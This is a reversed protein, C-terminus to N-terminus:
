ASEHMRRHAGIREFLEERGVNQGLRLGAMAKPVIQALDLTPCGHGPALLCVGLRALQHEFREILPEIELFKTFHFASHSFLATLEPLAISGLEEATRGCHDAPHYHAYSFGDGTFLVREQEDWVWLTTVLDKFTAEEFRLLRGGLDVETGVDANVFCDSAIRPYYVHYDRIDALIRAMPFKLLLRDLNGAHAVENHTPCLWAIPPLGGEILEDLQRNITRWDKPYGTDVIASHEAGAVVYLSNYSHM